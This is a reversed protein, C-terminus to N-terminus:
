RILDAETLGWKKLARKVLHENIKHQGVYETETVRWRAGSLRRSWVGLEIANYYTSGGDVTAAYNIIARRKIEGM